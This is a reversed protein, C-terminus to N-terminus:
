EHHGGCTHEGYSHEGCTHGEEHHHHSCVTDPEFALNGSLLASVCKDASGSAGPYLDIGAQALATRAGGGIGGCILADVGHIKLFGVLAGHGIGIASVVESSKVAGNEVNYIKFAETHGFHQFVLGNEYTVAIKMTHNRESLHFPQVPEPVTLEQPCDLRNFRCHGACGCSTQRGGCVEYDGGKIELEKENVLCQALKLRASSYIAQVTTRAVNMQEACQQQSMCELDILRITEFEDLTMVVTEETDGKGLPGFRGCSPEACIRRRKCPRPM